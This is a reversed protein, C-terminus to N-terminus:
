DLYYEGPFTEPSGAPPVSRGSLKAILGFTRDRTSIYDDGLYSVLCAAPLGQYEAIRANKYSYLTDTMSCIPTLDGYEANSEGFDAVGVAAWVSQAVFGADLASADRITIDSEKITM